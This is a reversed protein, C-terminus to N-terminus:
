VLGFSLDEVVEILIQYRGTARVTSSVNYLIHLFLRRNAQLGQICPRLPVVPRPAFLSLLRM